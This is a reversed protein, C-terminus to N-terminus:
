YYDTYGKLLKLLKILKILRLLKLINKKIIKLVIRKIIIM